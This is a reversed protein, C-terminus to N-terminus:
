PFEPEKSSKSHFDTQPFWFVILLLLWQTDETEMVDERNQHSYKLSTTKINYLRTNILSNFFFTCISICHNKLSFHM